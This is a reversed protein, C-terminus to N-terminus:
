GSRLLVTNAAAGRGGWMLEHFGESVPLPGIDSVASQRDCAQEAAAAEPHRGPLCRLLQEPQGNGEQEEPMHEARESEGDAEVQSAPVAKTEGPFGRRASATGQVRHRGYSM